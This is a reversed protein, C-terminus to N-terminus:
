AWGDVKRDDYFINVRGFSRGQFRQLGDDPIYRPTYWAFKVSAIVCDAQHASEFRVARTCSDNEFITCGFGLFLIKLPKSAEQISTCDYTKM